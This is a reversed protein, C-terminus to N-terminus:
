MCGLASTPPGSKGALDCALMVAAFLPFTELFQRPATLRAPWWALPRPNTARARCGPLDREGGSGAAAAWVLQMLGIIVAAILLKM